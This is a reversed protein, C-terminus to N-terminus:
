QQHDGMGCMKLDENTKPLALFLVLLDQKPIFHNIIFSMQDNTTSTQVKDTTSYFQNVAFPAGAKDNISLKFKGIGGNWYAGTTLRYLVWSPVLCLRLNKTDASQNAVETSNKYVLDPNTQVLSAPERNWLPTLQPTRDTFYRNLDAVSQAAPVTTGIVPTYQHSIEIIKGAPFTQEWEFYINESWLPLNNPSILHNNTLADAYKPDLKGEKTLKIQCPNLPLHLRKLLPTINNQGISASVRQTYNIKTGNAFVAYDKLGKAYVNDPSDMGEWMSHSEDNCSVPPLAFAIKRTIDKDSINKFHFNVDIFFDNESFKNSLKTINLTEDLMLINPTKEFVIDGPALAEVADDAYATFSTAFILILLIIKKHM